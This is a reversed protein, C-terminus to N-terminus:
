EIDSVSWFHTAVLAEMKRGSANPYAFVVQAVRGGVVLFRWEGFDKLLPAYKQAIWRHTSSNMLSNRTENDFDELDRPLKTHEERDSRNRKLVWLGKKIERLAPRQSELKMWPLAHMGSSIALSDLLTALIFKNKADTHERVPPWVPMANSLILMASRYAKEEDIKFDFLERPFWMLIVITSLCYRVSTGWIWVSM